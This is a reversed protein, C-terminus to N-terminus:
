WSAIVRVRALAIAPIEGGDEGGPGSGPRFPRSVDRTSPLASWRATRMTSALSLGVRRLRANLQAWAEAGDLAAALDEGVPLTAPDLEHQALLERLRRALHM